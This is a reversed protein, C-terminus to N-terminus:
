QATVKVVFVTDTPKGSEPTGTVTVRYEGIATDRSADLQVVVEPKDSAKVTAYRPTVTIGPMSKISLEVDRKFYPGRKITITVQSTAGQKVTHSTPVSISFEENLTVVGGKESTTTRCGVTTLLGVAVCLAGITKLAKVTLLPSSSVNIMPGLM